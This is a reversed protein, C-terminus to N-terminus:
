LIWYKLGDGAGEAARSSKSKLQFHRLGASYLSFLGSRWIDEKRGERAPQRSSARGEAAEM